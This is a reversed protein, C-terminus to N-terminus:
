AASFASWFFVASSMMSLGMPMIIYRGSWGAAGMGCRPGRQQMSNAPTDCSNRDKGQGQVHSRRSQGHFLRAVPNNLDPLEATVIAQLHNVSRQRRGAAALHPDAHEGRTELVGVDRDPSM